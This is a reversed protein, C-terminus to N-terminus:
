DGILLNSSHPRINLLSHFEINFSIVRQNSSTEKDLVVLEETCIGLWKRIPFIKQPNM